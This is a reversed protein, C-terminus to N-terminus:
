GAASSREQGTPAGPEQLAALLAQEFREV